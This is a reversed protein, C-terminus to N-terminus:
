DDDNGGKKNFLNPLEATVTSTKLTGLLGYILMLDPRQELNKKYFSIRKELQKLIFPMELDSTGGLHENLYDDIVSQVENITTVISNRDLKSFIETTKEIRQMETM